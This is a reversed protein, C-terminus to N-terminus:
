FSKKRKPPQILFIHKVSNLDFWKELNKKKNLPILNDSM